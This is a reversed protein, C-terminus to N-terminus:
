LRTEAFTRAHFRRAADAKRSTIRSASSCMKANAVLRRQGSSTSRACAPKPAQYSSNGREAVPLRLVDHCRRSTIAFQRHDPIHAKVDKIQWRDMRDARGIAFTLVIGSRRAGSSRRCGRRSRCGRLRAHRLEDRARCRRHNGARQTVGGGCCPISIASSKAM